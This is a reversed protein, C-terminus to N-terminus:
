RRPASACGSVRQPNRGKVGLKAAVTGPQHQAADQRPVIRLHGGHHRHDGRRIRVHQHQVAEVPVQVANGKIRQRIDQADAARVVRVTNRQPRIRPHRRTQVQVTVTPRGSMRIRLAPPRKRARSAHGHQRAQRDRLDDVQRREQPGVERPGHQGVAHPCLHARDVPQRRDRVPVHRHAQGTAPRQVKQDPVPRRRDRVTGDGAVQGAAPVLRAHPLGVQVPRQGPGGRRPWDDNQPNGVDVRDVPVPTRHGPASSGSASTTAAAERWRSTQASTAGRGQGPIQGPIM